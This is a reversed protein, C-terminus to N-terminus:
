LLYLLKTTLLRLLVFNPSSNFYSLVSPFKRYPENLKFNLAGRNCLSRWARIKRLFSDLIVYVKPGVFDTGGRGLFVCFQWWRSIENGSYITSCLSSGHLQHGTSPSLGASLLSFSGPSTPHKRFVITEVKLLKM